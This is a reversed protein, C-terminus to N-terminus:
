TPLTSVQHVMKCTLKLVCSLSAPGVCTYFILQTHTHTHALSHILFLSRVNNRAFWIYFTSKKRVNRELLDNAPTKPKRRWATTCVCEIRVSKDCRHYWPRGCARRLRNIRVFLTSGIHEIYIYEHSNHHRLLAVRAVTRNHPDEVNYACTPLRFSFFAHFNNEAFTVIFRRESPMTRESQNYVRLSHDIGDDTQGGPANCTCVCM